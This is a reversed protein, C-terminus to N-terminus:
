SFICLQRLKKPVMNKRWQCGSGTRIRRSKGKSLLLPAISWLDLSSACYSQPASAPLSRRQTDGVTGRPVWPAAESTVSAMSQLSFSARSFIPLSEIISSNAIDTGNCPHRWREDNDPKFGHSLEIEVWPHKTSILSCRSRPAPFFHPQNCLHPASVM